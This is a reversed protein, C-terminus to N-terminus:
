FCHYWHCRRLYTCFSVFASILLPFGFHPCLLVCPHSLLLCQLFDPLASQQSRATVCLRSHGTPAVLFVSLAMLHNIIDPYRGVLLIEDSFIVDAVELYVTEREIEREKCKHLEYINVRLSNICIM